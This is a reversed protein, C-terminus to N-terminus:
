HEGHGGHEPVSGPSLLDNGEQRYPWCNELGIVSTSSRFQMSKTWWGKAFQETQDACSFVNWVM